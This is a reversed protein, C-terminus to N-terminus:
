VINIPVVHIANRRGTPPQQQGDASHALSSLLVPGATTPRWSLSFRQWGRHTRPELQAARPSESEGFAIDVQAIGADAWAWGWIEYEAGLRLEVDPAPSVIVSEPAVSWVPVSAGTDRGDADIVPDNYWRTTFPGSARATELTLGTLWKVSNTGYFGPVVLRVPYGNEPPLPAGNLEYTILVDENLRDLPLDKVYSDIAIGAFEGYDAGTAWLYRAKPDVDCDNLIDSLRAGAWQVNSIRHTPEQPALPNGACQHITTVSRKPYRLLDSFTLTQPRAVLGGVTLTWSAADIRPVGLHCLVIIDQPPTIREVMQHPLLPVRRFLGAPELKPRSM